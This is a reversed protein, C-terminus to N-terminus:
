PNANERRIETLNLGGTYAYSVYQDWGYVIVGSPESARITHTGPDLARRYVSYQGSGILTFESADIPEDDIELTAGTPLTVNIYSEAYEAPTLIVFDNRYQEVPIQLMFAPDGIGADDGSGVGGVNPGPADQAALFQALMIPKNDSALVEFNGRSEFEFHEGRNLVPITVGAQPPVLVIRTNDAGAMLRWIDSEKGRDWTKTAVFRSGWTKLPFLQQELHDACCTNFGANVCDTLTRCQTRKDWECVGLGTVENIDVCRATNPANAAESGGFVAVRKDSVVRSGTPDAGPRDTQIQLVDFQKLKFVRTEGPQMNPIPKEDPSGEYIKGPQTSSSTTVSVTTEGEMVAVVTFYSRLIDFTQERTMVYYEQGLLSAPLLLSADNSFVQENELPNFQYAIIPVSSSFRYALPAQTTGNVDRRPLRYVRLEGPALPETSFPVGTADNLVPEVAGAEFQDVTVIAPLPSDPPNAVAVAFQAGQADYYGRGGGPVFANDLDVAFYDCGIYSNFKVNRECLAECFQGTCVHSAAECTQYVDYGSGDARCELVTQDDLCKRTGPFCETCAKNRCQSENGDPGTCVGPVFATASQNCILAEKSGEAICEKVEGPFCVAGPPLDYCRGIRCTGNDGPCREVFTDTGAANCFFAQAGGEEVCAVVSGPDCTAGDALPGSLDPAPAPGGDDPCGAAIAATSALLAFPRMFDLFRNSFTVTM